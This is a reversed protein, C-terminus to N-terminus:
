ELSAAAIVLPDDKASPSSVIRGTRARASRDPLWITDVGRRCPFAVANAKLIQLVDPVLRRARHDLGRYLANERRGRGRREFLKMLVTILVRVGLSVPLDLVQNTTGAGTAFGDFSCDDFVGAPLDESSVRGELTAIFCGHFRPLADSDVEPDLEIRGFLCDQFHVRSSLPMGAPFDVEPVLVDKIYVESAIEQRAEIASLVLDAALYNNGLVCAREIAATLRSPPIHQLKTAVVSVGLSGAACELPGPFLATDYPNEVFAFIDGARCTEAFSEDIFRRTESEGHDVGLGPLRQLLLM